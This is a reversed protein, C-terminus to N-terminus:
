IIQRGQPCSSSSAHAGPSSQKRLLPAVVGDQKLAGMDILYQPWLDGIELVFPVHRFGAILWGAAAAAPHVPCGVVVDPRPMRRQARITGM